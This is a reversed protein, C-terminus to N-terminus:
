YRELTKTIIQSDKEDILKTMCYPCFNAEIPLERGCHPCKKIDM